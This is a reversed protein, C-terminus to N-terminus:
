REELQGACYEHTGLGPLIDRLYPGEEHSETKESDSLSFNDLKVKQRATFVRHLRAVLPIDKM